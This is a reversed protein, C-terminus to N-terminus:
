RKMSAYLRCRCCPPSASFSAAYCRSQSRLSWSGGTLRLRDSIPLSGANLLEVLRMGGTALAVGLLAGGGSLLTGELLFQRLLQQRSAGLARRVAIERQRGESRALLLNAVNVCAILLVFVVAGLLVFMSRRVGGVLESHFGYITVPHDRVSVHNKDPSAKGWVKLLSNMEARAQEINVGPALRATM